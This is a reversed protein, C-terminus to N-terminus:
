TVFVEGRSFDYAVGRPFRGVTVTAVITNTADSIVSVTSDNYNAVFVQGKSSDFAISSPNSGVPVTAITPQAHGGSPALFALPLVMTALLLLAAMAHRRHHKTIGLMVFMSAHATAM